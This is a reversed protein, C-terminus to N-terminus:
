DEDGPTRHRKMEALKKKLQTRVGPRSENRLWWEISPRSSSAEIVTEVAKGVLSIEDPSEIETFSGDGVWRKYSEFERVTAFDDDNKPANFGGAFKMRSLDIVSNAAGDSVGEFPIYRPGNTNNLVIPTKKERAVPAESKKVKTM